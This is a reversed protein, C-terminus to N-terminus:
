GGDAPPLVDLYPLISKEMQEREIEEDTKQTAVRWIVVLSTLLLLFAVYIIQIHPTRM